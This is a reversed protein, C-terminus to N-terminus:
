GMYFHYFYTSFYHSITLRNPQQKWSSNERRLFFVSFCTQLLSHTKILVSIAYFYYAMKLSESISGFLLCMFFFTNQFYKNLSLSLSSHFFLSFHSCLGCAKKLVDNWHYHYYALPYFTEFICTCRTLQKLWPKM